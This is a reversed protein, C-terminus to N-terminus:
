SNFRLSSAVMQDRRQNSNELSVLDFCHALVQCQLLELPKAAVILRVLTVPADAEKTAAIKHDDTHFIHPGYLHVKIGDQNECYINGGKHNRKDIVLCKFGCDTMERAFVSGFLGSGVILYDYNSQLAELGLRVSVAQGQKPNPNIVVKSYEEALPQIQDAYSGLVTICECPKLNLAEKWFRKILPTGNKELLAKPYFGLRSGEGAALLIIALKSDSILSQM